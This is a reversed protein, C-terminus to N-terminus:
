LNRNVVQTSAQALPFLTLDAVVVHPPRSAMFYITEGIDKATLPDMGQYVAKAKNEDGKFRVLSFETEVMGPNISGVKIGYPNLDFRMGKTISDVAFKTASYVNGNPYNEKGAISSVNIITGKKRKIMFPTIIKSVYLLGKVNTDIMTDFDKISAQDFPALGHAGGANNILIDINELKNKLTNLSNSVEDFNCVDFSLIDVQVLASLEKQLAILKDKRRGCIILDIKNEAFIKATAKGIGSTAGTILALTM